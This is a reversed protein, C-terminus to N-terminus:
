VFYGYGVSTKAGIGQERMAREMWEVAVALPTNGDFVGGVIPTNETEEAGVFFMFDTKEVTLFPVPVPNHYDAPPKDGTYYSSYHPTMVDLCFAPTSIPFADFFRVIGRRAGAISDEPSGFVLCFGPDALAGRQRDGEENEFLEAVVRSRTVGKVASGPLYPIGYVHHLTMATEHVSAGGLGVALRWDLSMERVEHSLGSKNLADKRRDLLRSFPISDFRGSKLRIERGSRDLRHCFKKGDFYAAKNLFLSVNDVAFPELIESTDTPLFYGSYEAKGGYIKIKQAEPGKRGEGPVFLVELGETPKQEKTLINSIHFFIDKQKCEEQYSIFGFGKEANFKKIKGKIEM